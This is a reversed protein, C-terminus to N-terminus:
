NKSFLPKTKIIWLSSTADSMLAEMLMKLLNHTTQKHTTESPELQLDALGIVAKRLLHLSKM